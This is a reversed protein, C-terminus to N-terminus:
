IGLIKSTYPYTANTGRIVITFIWYILLLGFMLIKSNANNKYRLYIPISLFMIVGFDLSLRFLFKTFLSSMYFLVTLFSYIVLIEGKLLRNMRKYLCVLVIFYVIFTSNSFGSEGKELYGALRDAGLLFGAIFKEFILYLGCFSLILVIIYKFKYKSLPYKNVLMLMPYAFLSLAGSNHFLVAFISSLFYGKRQGQYIFTFALLVFGLSIYQRTINLSENYSFLLFVAMAHVPNIKERMRYASLYVLSLILLHLVFLFFHPNESIRSIIFTLTVAGVEWGAPSAVFFYLYNDSLCATEFISVYVETDTAVETDRLGALLAPFLLALISFVKFGARNKSKLLNYAIRTFFLSLVFCFLYIIM